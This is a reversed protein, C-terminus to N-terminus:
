SVIEFHQWHCMLIQIRFYSHFKIKQQTKPKLTLNNLALFPLLNIQVYGM